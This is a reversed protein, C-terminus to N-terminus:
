SQNRRCVRIFHCRDCEEGSDTRAFEAEGRMLAARLQVAEDLAKLVPAAGLVGYPSRSKGADPIPTQLKGDVLQLGVVAAEDDPPVIYFLFSVPTPGDGAALASYLPVQWHERNEVIDRMVTAATKPMRGTKYDVVVPGLGEVVDVRDLRGTLVTDGEPPYKAMQEVSRVTYRGKRKAEIEATQLLMRGIHVRTLDRVWDSAEPMEEAVAEDFAAAFDGSRLVARVADGDAGVPVLRNMVGHFVNGIELYISGPEEIRLVKAYFYKRACRMFNDIGSPSLRCSELQPSQAAPGAGLWGFAIADAGRVREALADGAPRRAIAEAARTAPSARREVDTAAGFLPALVTAPVAHEGASRAAFSVVLHESASCLASLLLRNEERERVDRDIRAALDAACGDDISGMARVLAARPIYGGDIEVRPFVGEACGLVIVARVSRGSIARASVLPVRATGARARESGDLYARRFEDLSLQGGTHSVVETYRRWEEAIEAIAGAHVGSLLPAVREDLLRVLDFIGRSGYHARLSSVLRDLNRPAENAAACFAEAFASAALADSFRGDTDRGLAGVLAHVFADMATDNGAGVDVAVGRERFVQHVLSAVREPDRAVVAIDSHAIGADLWARVCEAANQSEAIDDSARVARVSVQWATNFDISAETSANSFLPLSNVDAPPPTRVANESPGLGAVVKALGANSPRPPSLRFEVPQYLRPFEGRLFRDSTGRFSFHPGAPDGFVEIAVAGGPPALTRLLEFQGADLDQYDDILLVDKVGAAAALSRDALAARSAEWAADYFTILGREDLHERYAAFLSLVDRARPEDARERASRAQSATIGNQAFLHLLPLLTDRLSRSDAISRLDSQLLEPHAGFVRDLVVREDVDRLTRARGPRAASLLRAALMGHTTVPQAGFVATGDSWLRELLRDSQERGFAIVLPAHGRAVLARYREILLTTKGSGPPGLVRAHGPPREIFEQLRPDRSM